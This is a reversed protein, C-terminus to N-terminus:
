CCKEQWVVKGENMFYEAFEERINKAEISPKRAVKKLPLMSTVNDQETCWSGPVFNGEVELDFTGMPTYNTRSSNSKRLFNHLFCCTMTVLAVKDPQLLM